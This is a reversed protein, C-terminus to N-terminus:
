LGVEVGRQRSWDRRIHFCNALKSVICVGEREQRVNVERSKSVEEVRPEAGPPSM